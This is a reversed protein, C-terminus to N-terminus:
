RSILRIKIAEFEEAVFLNKSSIVEINSGIKFDELPVEKEEPRRIGPEVEVITMVVFRTAPTILVKRIEEKQIQQGKEDLMPVRAAFIFYNEQIEQITGSLNYIVKPLTVKPLEEIVEEPVDSVMEKQSSYYNALVLIAFLAIILILGIKLNKKM